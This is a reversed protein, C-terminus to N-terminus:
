VSTTEPLPQGEPRFRAMLDRLNETARHCLARAAPVSNLKMVQAVEDYSMECLHRLIVAERHRQNLQLMARERAEELESTYLVVSPAADPAPINITSDERDSGAEGLPKVKGAGRKKASGRRSADRVNNVVITAIWNRFSGESTQEFKDLHLFAELLSEQALDQIDQWCERLPKNLRLAVIQQVRPLYRAFLEERALANGAKAANVQLITKPLGDPDPTKRNQVGTDQWLIPPGAGVALAAAPAAGHGAPTLAIPDDRAM